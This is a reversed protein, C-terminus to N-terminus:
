YAVDRMAEEILSEPERRVPGRLRRQTHAFDYVPVEEILRELVARFRDRIEANRQISPNNPNVHPIDRDMIEQGLISNMLEAADQHFRTLEVLTYNGNEVQQALRQLVKLKRDNDRNLANM